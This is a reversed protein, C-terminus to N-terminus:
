VDSRTEKIRLSVQGGRGVVINVRSEKIIILWKKDHKNENINVIKPVIPIKSLDINDFM